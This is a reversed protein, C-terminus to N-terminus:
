KCIGMSKGTSSPTSILFMHIRIYFYKCSNWFFLDVDVRPFCTFFSFDINRDKYKVCVHVRLSEFEWVRLIIEEIAKLTNTNAKKQTKILPVFADDLTVLTHVCATPSKQRVLQSLLQRRWTHLSDVSTEGQLPVNWMFHSAYRACAWAGGVNLASDATFPVNTDWHLDIVSAGSKGIKVSRTWSTFRTQEWLLSGFHSKGRYTHIKIATTIKPKINTHTQAHTQTQKFLFFLTSSRGIYVTDICHLMTDLSFFTHKFNRQIYYKQRQTYM